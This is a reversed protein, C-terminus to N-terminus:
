VEEILFYGQQDSLDELRKNAWLSYGRLGDDFEQWHMIEEEDLQGECESRADELTNFSGIKITSGLEPSEITVFYKM